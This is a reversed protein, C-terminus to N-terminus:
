FTVKNTEILRGANYTSFADKGLFLGYECIAYFTPADAGNVVQYEYYVNNADKAYTGSTHCEDTDLVEFTTPDAGEFKVARLYVNNKDKSYDNGLDVWTDPDAGEIGLIGVYLFEGDTGKCEGETSLIKFERANVNKNLFWVDVKGSGFAFLSGTEWSLVFRGLVDKQYPCNGDYKRPLIPTDSIYNYAFYLGVILILLFLLMKKM